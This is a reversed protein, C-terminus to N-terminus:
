GKKLKPKTQLCICSFFLHSNCIKRGFNIELFGVISQGRRLNANRDTSRNDLRTPTRHKFRLINVRFVRHDIDEALWGVFVKLIPKAGSVVEGVNRRHPNNTSLRLTHRIGNGRRLVRRRHHDEIIRVVCVVVFEATGITTLKSTLVRASKAVGDHHRIGVGSRKFIPLPCVGVAVFVIPRLFKGIRRGCRFVSLFTVTGVIFDMQENNVRTTTNTTRLARNKFLIREKGLSLIGLGKVTHSGEITANKLFLGVVDIPHVERCGIFEFFFANAKTLTHNAIRKGRQLSWKNGLQLATGVVKSGSIGVDHNSEVFELVGFGVVQRVDDTTGVTGRNRLIDNFVDAFLATVTNGEDARVLIASRDNTIEGVFVTLCTNRCGRGLDQRFRNLETFM